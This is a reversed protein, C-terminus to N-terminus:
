ADDFARLHADPELGEGELVVVRMGTASGAGHYEGAHWFAAEGAILPRRAGDPGAAWGEGAVVLFLQDVPAEHAGLEGGADVHLATAVLRAPTHQLPSATVEHSGHAEVPRGASPDFRYRRM